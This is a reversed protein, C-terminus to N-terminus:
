PQPGFPEPTGPTAQEENSFASTDAGRRYRMRYTYMVGTSLGTDDFWGTYPYPTPPLVAVTQWAKNAFRRQVQVTDYQEKVVWTCSATTPGTGGCSLNEPPVPNAAASTSDFVSPLGAKIHRIKYNYSTGRVVTLDLYHAQQPFLTVKLQGNRYVETSATADGTFWVCDMEPAFNGECRLGSPAAPPQPPAPPATDVWFTIADSASSHPPPPVNVDVDVAQHGHATIHRVFYSYVGRSLSTDTFATSTLDLTARLTWPGAATMRYVETSDVDRGLHRNLWELSPQDQGGGLLATDTISPPDIHKWLQVRADSLFDSDPDNFAPSGAVSASDTHRITFATVDYGAQAPADWDRATLSDFTVSDLPFVVDEYLPSGLTTRLRRLWREYRGIVPTYRLEVRGVGHSFPWGGM